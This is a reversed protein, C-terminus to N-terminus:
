KAKSCWVAVKIGGPTYGMQNIRIWANENQAKTILAISFQIILFFNKKM